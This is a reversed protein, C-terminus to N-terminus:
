EGRAKAIAAFTRQVWPWENVSSDNTFSEIDHSSRLFGRADKAHGIAIPLIFELAALLDPAAAILRANAASELTTHDSVWNMASDKAGHYCAVVKTGTADAIYAPTATWPGPTHKAKTM